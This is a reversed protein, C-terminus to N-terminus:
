TISRKGHMQEGTESCMPINLANFIAVEERREAAIGPGYSFFLSFRVVVEPISTRM